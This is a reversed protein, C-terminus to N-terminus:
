AAGDRLDRGLRGSRAFARRRPPASFLFFFV